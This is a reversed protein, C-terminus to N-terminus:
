KFRVALDFVFAQTDSCQFQNIKERTAFTYFIMNELTTGYQEHYIGLGNQQFTKEFSKLSDHYFQIKAERVISLLSKAESNKGEAKLTEAEAQLESASSGGCDLQDLDIMSSFDVMVAYVSQESGTKMKNKLEETIQVTGLPAKEETTLPGKQPTQSSWIVAPEALWESLTYASLNQYSPQSSPEETRSNSHSSNQSHSSNPAVSSTHESEDKQSTVSNDQHNGSHNATQSFPPDTVPIPDGLWDSKWLGIGILAVFCCCSFAAASRFAIQKRKRIKEQHENIRFLVQQAMDKYNKM